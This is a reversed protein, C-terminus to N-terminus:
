VDGGPAHGEERNQAPEARNQAGLLEVLAGELTTHHITADGATLTISGLAGVQITFGSRLKYAADRLLKDVSSIRQAFYDQADFSPRPLQVHRYHGPITWVRTDRGKHINRGEDEVPLTEGTPLFLPCRPFVSGLWRDDITDPIIGDTKLADRVARTHTTGNEQALKVAYWRALRVLPNTTRNLITEAMHQCRQADLNKAM